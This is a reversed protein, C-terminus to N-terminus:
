EGGLTYRSGPLAEVVGILELGLLIPSLEPVTLDCHETLADIHLINDQLAALIKAENENAAQHRVRKAGSSVHWGMCRLIDDPTEVLMAGDRLLQHCGAHQGNMVSGPVALVDRGYDAALRATILSGSRIDAEVVLTAVALGAIIRNRRPFNEPRAEAAPLFESIMCGQAAVAEIQRQQEPSFPAALGCGLVALTPAEGQLAGGHAAADIGYAMGSVIAIGRMSLHRSWRRTLLRGESSAKRAGVIALLRSHNLASTDGRCFLILPADDTQALDSPYHADEPCLLTIGAASCQAIISAAEQQRSTQLTAVLKNGVGEINKLESAPRQWLKRIGGCAAVLQRGTRPGVGPTLSLRLWDATLETSPKDTLEASVPGAPAAM